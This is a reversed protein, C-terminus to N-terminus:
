DRKSAPEDRDNLRILDAYQEGRSTKSARILVLDRPRLADIGVERERIYVRTTPEYKIVIVKAETTRLRIENSTRDVREVTGIIEEKVPEREIKATEREIGGKDLDPRPRLALSQCGSAVLVLTLTMYLYDIRPVRKM